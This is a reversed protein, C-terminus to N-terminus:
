DDDYMQELRWAAESGPRHPPHLGLAKRQQRRMAWLNDDEAVVRRQGSELAPRVIRQYFLLEAVVVVPLMWRFRSSSRTTMRPHYKYPSRRALALDVVEGMLGVVWESDDPLVRAGSSASVPCTDSNEVLAAPLPRRLFPVPGRPFAGRLLRIRGDVFSDYTTGPPPQTLNAHTLALITRSWIQRGFTQSIAAIIARDLPDVRYLDLRDVYLVVDIPVGRIDEAIKSLSGWNVTDGAEPDELGCTDIIKLRLGDVEPDGVAVQRVVSTTMETDAQLKFAQVRVVAEGLLSNVLSSKGVSSKGLLLVTLQKRGAGAVEKLLEVLESREPLRSLGTWPQAEEEEEEEEEENEAGDARGEVGDDHEEVEEVEADDEFEEEYDNRAPAAM